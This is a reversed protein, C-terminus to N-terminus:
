GDVWGGMWGDVSPCSPVGYMGWAGDSGHVVEGSMTGAGRGATILLCGGGRGGAAETMGWSRFLGGGTRLPAEKRVVGTSDPRQNWTSAVLFCRAASAELEAGWTFRRRRFAGELLLPDAPATAAAVGAAGAATAAAAGVVLSAVTRAM